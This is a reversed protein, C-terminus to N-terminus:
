MKDRFTVGIKEKKVREVLEIWDEFYGVKTYVRPLVRSACDIELSVFGIVINYQILPGGTDYGCETSQLYKACFMTEDLRYKQPAMCLHKPVLIVKSSYIEDSDHDAMRSSWGLTAGSTNAQYKYGAGAIVAPVENKDQFPTKVRILCINHSFTKQSYNSHRLIDDVDRAIGERWAAANSVVKMREPPYVKVLECCHATTMVWYPSIITTGCMLVVRDYKIIVLAAMHKQGMYEVHKNALSLLQKGSNIRYEENREGFISDFMGENCRRRTELVVILLLLLNAVSVVILTIISMCSIQGMCSKSQVSSNSTGEDPQPM